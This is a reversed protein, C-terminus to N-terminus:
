RKVEITETKRLTPRMGKFGKYLVGDQPPWRPIVNDARIEVKGTPMEWYNLTVTEPTQKVRYDCRVWDWAPVECPAWSNERRLCGEIGAGEEFAQMVKIKYSTDSM